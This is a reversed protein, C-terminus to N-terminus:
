MWHSTKRGRRLEDVAHDYTGHANQAVVFRELDYPDAVAKEQRAGNPDGLKLRSAQAQYFTDSSQGVM